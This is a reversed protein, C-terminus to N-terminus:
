YSVANVRYDAAGASDNTIQFRFKEPVATFDERQPSGAGTVSVGGEAHDMWRGQAESYREVSLTYDAPAGGANDDIYVTVDDGNDSTNLEFQTTTGGSAVGTDVQENEDNLNSM